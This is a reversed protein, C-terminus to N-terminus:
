IEVRAGLELVREPPIQYYAAPHRANRAMLGFLTERWLAMGGPRRSALVRERGLFVTTEDWDLGLGYARTREFIEPVSPLELFGYDAFVRYFGGGLDEIRIRREPPIRPVDRGRVNLVIVREHLVKNHAYNRLLSLPAARADPTMFVGTGPVRVPPAARADAIFDMLPRSQTELRASLIRRGRHWTALLTFVGAAVVLPVWGGHAIKVLNAGLFALDIALFPPLLLTAAWWPWGWVDRAALFLLLTTIVMIMSVAVGYAAALGGSSRFALVLGVTGAMLAWNISPVYVQGRETPSTHRVLLRPSYGLRISQLALSFAASIIAQSAIITAATALVILPVIAWPPALRYFAHDTEPRVLLLAGQGFYNLLLGPLAVAFWGLRIPRAGFHGLDAYLAEGGTVVLFVTGLVLFGLVGHDAFFQLAHAPHAAALVAPAELIGRLGLAALAAFWLLVIPGFVAGVRGTGRHQVAFLGVLILITLPVVAPDLAPAAVSLGEVASLVSIAPTIMGDGYLLAAGFLGLLGLAYRVRRAPGGHGDWPPQVLAMLALIGGEGQNDARLVLLLYKVSIVLVLAWFVLSLVGLVNAPTPAVGFPGRFCERLAYLPSTGIDGFVVGLSALVLIPLRGRPGPAAAPPAAEPM